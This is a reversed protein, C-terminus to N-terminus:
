SSYRRPMESNLVPGAGDRPGHEPKMNRPGSRLVPCPIVEVRTAGLHLGKAVPSISQAQSTSDGLRQGAGTGEVPLRRTAQQTNLALGLRGWRQLRWSSPQLMTQWSSAKLDRECIGTYESFM